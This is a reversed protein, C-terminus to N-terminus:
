CGGKESSGRSVGRRKLTDPDARPNECRGGSPNESYLLSRKTKSYNHCQFSLYSWQSWDIEKSSLSQNYPNLVEWKGIIEISTLKSGSIRIESARIQMGYKSLFRGKVGLCACSAISSSFKIKWQSNMM